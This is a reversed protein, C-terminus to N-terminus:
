RHNWCAVKVHKCSKENKFEKFELGPLYKTEFKLKEQRQKLMLAKLIKKVHM